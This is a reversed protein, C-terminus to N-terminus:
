LTKTESAPILGRAVSIGAIYGSSWAWQFNFGGVRGDVDLLEGCFHLGPVIRSEMTSANVESLPVGGATAEAFTFGRDGIVPLVFATLTRALRKRQDRTLSQCVTSPPIESVDSLLRALRDPIREALLNAVGRNGGKLLWQDVDDTTMGPLVNMSLVPASVGRSELLGATYYRSVDLVSPGSVGFHTILTSNTFAHLRRGSAESIELTAPFTLGSLSMLPCSQDLILPVLSPFVCETVSHGLAKALQYGGGDSGTRPLARGGTSLVIKRSRYVGSTSVIEFTGDELVSVASVRDPHSLVVGLRRAEGLLAELVTMARDTVPFLKGTEERKLEVGLDAFFAKTPEVDFRRLVNRITNRSTGAYQKEDVQYHTVNCRGGGAVLIKAGLKVAGDFARIRVPPDIGATCRGAHIACMLGAAGTGVIAIELQQRDAHM